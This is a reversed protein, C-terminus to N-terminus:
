EMKEMGDDMKEEMGSKMTDMESKMPEAMKSDMKEHSMDMTKSDMKEHSMDMTESDMKKMESGTKMESAMTEKKMEHMGMKDKTACGSLVFGTLLVAGVLMKVNYNKM